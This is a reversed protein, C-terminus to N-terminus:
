RKKLIVLFSTLVVAFIGSLAIINRFTNNQLPAFGTSPLKPITAPASYPTTYEYAGVDYYSYAGGGTNPIGLYDYRQNGSYDTTPVNTSIGADIAPSVSLLRFDSTNINAFSPNGYKSNPEHNLHYNAWTLSPTGSNIKFANAEVTTNGQHFYLNYDFSSAAYVADTINVELPYNGMFINNKVIWGGSGSDYFGGRLGMNISASDGNNVVTNNYAVGSSTGTVAFGDNKNGYIINNNVQQGTCGDHATFGDGNSVQDVTGNNYIKNYEVIFGTSNVASSVGDEGNNYVESHRLIIDVATTLRVGDSSISTSDHTKGNLLQINSVTVLYIGHGGYNSVDFGDIKSGATFSGNVLYVGHQYSTNVTLNTLSLTINTGANANFYLADIVGAHAEGSNSLSWSDGTISMNNAGSIEVGAHQMHNTTIRNAIVTTTGTINVASGNSSSINIDEITISPCSAARIVYTSSSGTVNSILGSTVASFYIGNAAGSISINRATVGTSNLSYMGQSSGSIITLGSVTIYNKDATYVARATASGDVVPHEGTVNQYIISHGSTGSSPTTLTGSYVGGQDSIYIIDDASFTQSNHTALSMCKTSDTVPGTAAAKNAATGDSRMYYTNGAAKAKEAMPIFGVTSFFAGLILFTLIFYILTKYSLSHLLVTKLKM